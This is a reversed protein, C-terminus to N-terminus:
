SEQNKYCTPEKILRSLNCANNRFDDIGTWKCEMHIEM